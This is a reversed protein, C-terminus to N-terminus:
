IFIRWDMAGNLPDPIDLWERNKAPKVVVVDPNLNETCVATMEVIAREQTSM